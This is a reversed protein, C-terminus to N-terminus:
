GLYNAYHRKAVPFAYAALNAFVADTRKGVVLARGAKADRFLDWFVDHAIEGKMGFMILEAHNTNAYFGTTFSFGPGKADALVGTRFWGHERVKAVFAKEAEDLKDNPADLGTRM